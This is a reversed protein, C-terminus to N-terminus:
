WRWRLENDGNCKSGGREDGAEEGGRRPAVALAPLPVEEGGHPGLAAPVGAPAAGDRAPDAGPMRLLRPAVHEVRAAGGDPVALGEGILGLVAPQHELEAM